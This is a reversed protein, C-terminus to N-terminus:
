IIIITRPRANDFDMWGTSVEPRSFMGVRYYKGPVVSSPYLVLGYARRQRVHGLGPGMWVNADYRGILVMELGDPLGCDVDVVWDMEFGSSDKAYEEPLLPLVKSTIALEGNTVQGYPNLGKLHAKVDFTAVVNLEGQAAAATTTMAMPLIDLFDLRGMGGGERAWSWSPAIYEDGDDLWDMLHEFRSRSVASLPNNKRSGLENGRGSGYWVVERGLDEVWLGAAYRYGGVEAVYRALGSIAPLNDDRRSFECTAFRPIFINRWSELLEEIAVRGNGHREAQGTLIATTGSSPELFALQKKLVPGQKGERFTFNGCRLHINTRDFYLLRTSLAKEQFTWGRTSWRSKSMASAFEWAFPSPAELEEEEHVDGGEQDQEEEVQRKQGAQASLPLVEHNYWQGQQDESHCKVHEEEDDQKTPVGESGSWRGDLFGIRCSASWLGAITVWANSYIRGMVASEAEWDALDDQLICLSDIWLYSLGLRRTVTIADVLIPSLEEKRIRVQRSSLSASTITCQTLADSPPGWCYSLAAYKYKYIKPGQKHDQHHSALNGDDDDPLRNNSSATNTIEVRVTPDEDTGVFLLRTPIFGPSLVPHNCHKACHAIAAEITTIHRVSSSTSSPNSM